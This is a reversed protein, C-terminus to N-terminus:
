SSEPMRRTRPPNSHLTAHKNKPTKRVERVAEVEKAKKILIDNATLLKTVLEREAAAYVRPTTRPM